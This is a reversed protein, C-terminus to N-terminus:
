FYDPHWVYPVGTPFIADLLPLVSRDTLIVDSTNLADRMSRCGVILQMLVDQPLELRANTMAGEQLTVQSQQVSLITTGLDTALAVSGDGTAPSLALRREFEPVLKQILPQQNMIRMMGDSYRPHEVQWTAGWRRLYDAFPHDQPLYFTVDECRKDIAQQAFTALIVPFFRDERAALEVVKVAKDRRDWVAYGILVGADDEWLCSEARTDWHSGKEFKKYDEPDRILTGTRLANTAEFLEIVAPMDEEGIPRRTLSNDAAEAAAAEADRTKVDVRSKALCTAYGWKNYFNEIGFLMSVDYGEDVMYNVTDAFLQRMYGKMRHQRDTHVGAIGAMRVQTVGIRMPYDIVWLWAVRTEDDLWLSREYANGEQRTKIEM